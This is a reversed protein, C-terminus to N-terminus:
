VQSLQLLVLKTFSVPVRTTAYSLAGIFPVDKGGWTWGGEIPYIFGTM